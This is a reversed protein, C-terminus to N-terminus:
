EMREPSLSHDKRSAEVVRVYVSADSQYGDPQSSGQAPYSKRDGTSTSGLLHLDQVKELGYKVVRYRRLGSIDSM